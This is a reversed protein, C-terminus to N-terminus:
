ENKVEADGASIGEKRAGTESGTHPSHLRLGAELDQLGRNAAQMLREDAIPLVQQGRWLGMAAEALTAPGVEAELAALAAVSAQKELQLRREKLKTLCDKLAAEAQEEGPLRRALLHELHEQLEPSLAQRLEQSDATQRWAAMLERNETQWLLSEDLAQGQERLWPYRLLLALLFEERQDGRGMPSVNASRGLSEPIGAARVPLGTKLGPRGRLMAALEEEKVLALRSLRQLYHARVVPDSITGVLPLLEQVAQSRGQPIAADTRAMVTEFKYDLIPKAAAILAQWAAPDQRIVEDPDRGQPLVAVRLDVAVAEQHRILGRWTLVPVTEGESAQQAVQQGHLAAEGGAADADLALVINRTYRKLLRLQRETLATGMSAVVNAFGHQHAAIADMYGEVIVAVGERRVADYARDLAYLTGGKDFLATQPTNLYKPPSDDLARAGFGIARGKVDWIPFMLRGRFRDYLGSEGEVLLGAALLEEDRWGREALYQRLADWGSPAYGLSFERTTKVDLGRRELYERALRGAESNLLLHHFYHAAAENAGRLREREQDEEERREPLRVGAREALLRLAQGFQLGEKKMVFSFVDGGSACAGFCHWTQREPSVFFSPTREPHFPCLAKFNRGAKQLQVSQGIVEVIDLRAKVEEIPNM